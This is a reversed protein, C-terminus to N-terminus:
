SAEGLSELFLEISSKVVEPQDAVIHVEIGAPLTAQFRKAAEKVSRGLAIVDGGNAMVVGLGIAPVGNYRMRPSPPDAFGRKVEAVDGLRLHHGAVVLDTNRVQEVADFPGTVRMRIRDTDTEVFGGALLTNQKQLADAIQVAIRTAHRIWGHM